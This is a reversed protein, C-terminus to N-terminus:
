VFGAFGDAQLLPAFEIVEYRGIGQLVFPDNALLSLLEDRPQTRAILIGGTGDARPGSCLLRGERYLTGLFARHADRVRAVEDAPVQYQILLVFM